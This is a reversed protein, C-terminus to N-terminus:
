KHKTPSNEPIIWKMVLLLWGLLGWCGMWERRLVCWYASLKAVLPIHSLNHTYIYISIILYSPVLPQYASTSKHQGGGAVAILHYINTYQIHYQIDNDYVLIYFILHYVCITYWIGIKYWYRNTYSINYSQWVHNKELLHWTAGPRTARRARRSGPGTFRQRSGAPSHGSIVDDISKEKFDKTYYGCIVPEHHNKTLWIYIYIYIYIYHEIDKQGNMITIRQLNICDAPEVTCILWLM